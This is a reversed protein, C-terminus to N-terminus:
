YWNHALWFSKANQWSGYRGMVYNQAVKEQNAKSLDGNLYALQLQYKGYCSGNRATYSGGSERQAIWNRAATEAKSLTPAVSKSQLYNSLIWGSASGSGNHVYYYVYKKSGKLVNAKQTVTWTTHPYNKLYHTAKSFKFTKTGTMVFNYTAGKSSKRVYKANNVSTIKTISKKTAAASASNNNSMLMMSFTAVAALGLKTLKNLTNM